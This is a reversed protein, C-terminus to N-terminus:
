HIGKKVTRVPSETGDYYVLQVTIFQPPTALRLIESDDAPLRGHERLSCPPVPLRLDLARSDISYRIERLGCSESYLTTFYVNGDNYEVWSAPLERLTSADQERIAGLADFSLTYPGLRRGDPAVARVQVTGQEDMFGVGAHFDRDRGEAPAWEQVDAPMVELRGLAEASGLGLHWGANSLMSREPDIWIPVTAANADGPGPAIRHGIDLGPSPAPTIAAANHATLVFTAALRGSADPRVTDVRLDYGAFVIRAPASPSVMMDLEHLETREGLRLVLTGHFLMSSCDEPSLCGSDESLSRLTLSFGPPRVSAGAGRVLTFPDGIHTGPSPPPTVAPTAAVSLAFAFLSALTTLM